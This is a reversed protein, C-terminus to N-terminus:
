RMCGSFTATTVAAPISRQTSASLWMSSRALGPAELRRFGELPRPDGRRGGTAVGARGPGRRHEIHGPRDPHRDEGEARGVAANGRVPGRVRAPRPDM